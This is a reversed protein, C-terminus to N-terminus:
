GPMEAPSTTALPANRILSTGRNRILSTGPMEAPSTTALSSSLTVFEKFEESAELRAYDVGTGANTWKVVSRTVLIGTRTVLTTVRGGDAHGFSVSVSSRNIISLYICSSSLSRSSRRPRWGLTTWARAQTQCLPVEGMLFAWGGLIVM